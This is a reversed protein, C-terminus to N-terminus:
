PNAQALREFDALPLPRSYLYGQFHQCGSRILEDRQSPTEVGEAIVDIGLTQSLQVIVAAIASGSGAEDLDAVFSQDIKLQDLPLNKLYSLSSYGTGFDDLSLRIGLRSLAHMKAVVEELEDLLVSETLELKLLRQDAGTQKLIFAVKDLFDTQRFQLPSVNVSLTVKALRPDGAWAALQECAHALVWNGLPLILGSEEAIPIFEGPPVLGREPHQWRVLAEAGYVEGGSTVQAQYHLRLQGAQIGERLATELATRALLLAQMAADYFRVTNRGADKAQYMALDAQKMIEDASKDDGSFVTIGISPTSHHEVEGLSYPQNLRHLIKQSVMDAQRAASQRDEGMNELLVVFEDGGLRAVLDVLRVSAVLRESVQKLLADGVHHGRTDNITKFNDLDLFILAGFKGSRTASNLAHSLSGMVKRRNPLGTLPDHEAMVELERRLLLGKAYQHFIIAALITALVIATLSNLLMISMQAGQLGSSLLMLCVLAATLGFLPVSILPRMLSLGAVAFCVLIFASVGGVEIDFYSVAVGYALYTLGMLFQLLTTTRASQQPRRLVLTVLLALLLTVVFTVAHVVLLADAWQLTGAHVPSGQFSGYWLALAAEVPLFLWFTTLIRRLSEVAAEGEVARYDRSIARIRSLVGKRPKLDISMSFVM